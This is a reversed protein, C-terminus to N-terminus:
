GAPKTEQNYNNRVGDSFEIGQDTGKVYGASLGVYPGDFNSKASAESVGILSFILIFAKINKMKIKM